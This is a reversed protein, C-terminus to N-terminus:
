GMVWAIVHLFVNVLVGSLLDGLLVGFVGPLRELHNLLKRYWYFPRVTNVVHFLVFGFIVVRWRLPVGALAIMAGIIKDVVIANAVRCKDFDDRYSLLAWQIIVLFLLGALALTWYFILNNLWYLSQFLFLLPIALTSALVGGLWREGLSGLSAISFCIRRMRETTRM